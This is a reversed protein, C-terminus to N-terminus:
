ATIRNVFGYIVIVNAASAFAKVTDGGSLILGPVVLHLGDTAPVVHEILDDPDDAGGWELTLTRDSSDTNFAYIFIEDKESADAAHITDGVTATQTVKIGLGDGTGGSLFEKSFTAM